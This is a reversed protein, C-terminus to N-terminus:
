DTESRVVDGNKSEHHSIQAFFNARKWLYYLTTTVVWIWIWKDGVIKNKNGKFIIESWRTFAFRFGGWQPYCFYDL